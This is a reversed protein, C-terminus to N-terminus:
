VEGPRVVVEKDLLALLPGTLGKGIGVRVTGRHALFLQEVGLLRVAQHLLGVRLDRQM